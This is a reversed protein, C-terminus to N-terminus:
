SFAPFLRCFWVFRGTGNDPNVAPLLHVLLDILLAASVAHLLVTHRPFLFGRMSGELFVRMSVSICIATYPFVWVCTLCRTFPISRPCTYPFVSIPLCLPVMPTGTCLSVKLCTVTLSTYPFISMYPFCTHGRRYVSVSRCMGM